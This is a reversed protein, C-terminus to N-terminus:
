ASSSLRGSLRREGRDGSPMGVFSNKTLKGMLNGLVAFLLGLGAALAQHMAAHGANHRSQPNSRNTPKM